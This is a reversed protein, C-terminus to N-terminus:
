YARAVLAHRTPSAGSNTPNESSRRDTTTGTSKTKSMMMMMTTTTPTERRCRIAWSRPSAGTSWGSNEPIHPTM